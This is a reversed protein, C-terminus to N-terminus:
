GGTVKPMLRDVQWGGEGDVLEIAGVPLGGQQMAAQLPALMVVRARGDAVPGPDTEYDLTDLDCGALDARLGIVLDTLFEDREADSATGERLRAALAADMGGTAAVRLVTVRGEDGLLEWVRHHEGWAIAGIFARAAEEPTTPRDPASM